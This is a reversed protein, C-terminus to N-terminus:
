IGETVTYYVLVANHDGDICEKAHEITKYAARFQATLSGESKIKVIWYPYDGSTAYEEVDTVKLGALVEM